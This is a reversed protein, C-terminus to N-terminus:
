QYGPEGQAFTVAPVAILCAFVLILFRKMINRREVQYNTERTAVVLLADAFLQKMPKKEGGLCTSYAKKFSDFKAADAAAATQRPQQQKQANKKKKGAVGGM